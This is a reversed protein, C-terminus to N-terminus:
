STVSFHNTVNHFSFYPSDYSLYLPVIFISMANIATEVCVVKPAENIARLPSVQLCGPDLRVIRCGYCSYSM